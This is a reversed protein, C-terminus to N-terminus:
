NVVEEKNHKGSRNWGIRDVCLYPPGCDPYINFDSGCTECEINRSDGGRPGNLWNTGSCDPCINQNLLTFDRREATLVVVPPPFLKSMLKQFINM